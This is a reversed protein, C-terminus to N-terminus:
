FAGVSSDFRYNNSTVEGLLKGNVVIQKEVVNALRQISGPSLDVVAVSTQAPASVHGGSAYGPVGNMLRGLADQYPLGTAQNVDRKPIVYEGRHVVGAPEYMGGRGTFGGTAYGKSSSKAVKAPDILFKQVDAARKAEAAQAAFYDDWSKYPFPFDIRPKVDLSISKFGGGGGAAKIGSNVASEISKKLKAKAEKSKDVLLSVKAKKNDTLKKIENNVRAKEAKGTNVVVKIKAKREKVAEDAFKKFSAIQDSQTEVRINAIRLKVAEDSAEKFRAIKDNQADVKLQAVRVKEAADLKTLIEKLAADAPSLGTININTKVSDPLAKLITGLDSVADIYTGAETINFGLAQLQAKFDDTSQKVATQLDKESAGSAILNTILNKYGEALAQVAARNKIAQESNGVLSKSQADEAKALNDVADTLKSSTQARHAETKAIEADIQQVMATDGYAVSVERWMQLKSLKADDEALSANLSGIENRLDRVSRAADDFQKALDRFMTTLRDQDSGVDFRLSFARDFVGRATNAYDVATILSAAYDQAAKVNDELLKKRAELKELEKDYAAQAVAQREKLKDLGEELTAQYKENKEIFEDLDDNMSQVMKDHEDTFRELYAKMPDILADFAKEAQTIREDWKDTLEQLADKEAKRDAAQNGASGRSAKDVADFAQQAGSVFPQFDPLQITPQVKEFGEVGQLSAIVEALYILHSASVGSQTSLFDFFAQLNAAAVSADGASAEMIARISAQMDLGSFAAQAGNDAFAGGLKYLADELAAEANVVAFVEDIFSYLDVSAIDASDAVDELAGGMLAFAESANRGQIGAEESAIAIEDIIRSADSELMLEALAEFGHFEEFADELAEVYATGANAGEAASIAIFEDMDLKIAEAYRRFSGDGVREQFAESQAIKNKIWAVTNEGVVHTLEDMGESIGYVYDPLVGMVDRAETLTGVNADMAEQASSAETTFPRFADSALQASGALESYAAADERLAESLGDTSGIMDQFITDSTQKLSWLATVLTGVLVVVAGIGTSILAVRLAGVAGASLTASAAMQNLAVSMGRISILSVGAPLNFSATATSLAAMSAAAMAGGAILATFAATVAAVAGAVVILFQGVPTNAMDTLVNFMDKLIDIIFGVTPALAAGATATFEKVANLLLTWRSALDDLILSYQRGLETGDKFGRESDFMAQNLVSVSRSTNGADAALAQFVQVARRESIGLADFTSTLNEVSGLAEAFATIFQGPEQKWLMATEESTRGLLRSFAELQEGGSIIARDMVKQLTLFASRAREPPQGLSALATALGITEYASMGVAAAFPALEQTTRVIQTETAAANVGVLTIASGLANFDTEGLLNSIRGFAEVADNLTVTDSTAVFKAVTETFSELQETAVGLQAGRAGINTLEDFTQPIERSLQLFENRLKGVSDGTVGSTRELATFSTEFKAAAVVSAVGVATIAASVVGASQAVDYLAYRLTPLSASQQRIAETADQVAKSQGRSASSVQGSAGSVDDATKRAASGIRNLGQTLNKTEESSLRESKYLEDVADRVKNVEAEVRDAGKSSYEFLIEYLESNSAM